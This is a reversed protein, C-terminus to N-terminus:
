DIDEANDADEPLPEIDSIPVPAIERPPIVERQPVAEERQPPPEPARNATLGGILINSLNTEDWHPSPQASARVIVLEYEPFIWVRQYGPSHFTIVKSATFPESAPMMYSKPDFVTAGSYDIHGDGLWVQFGFTPAASSPRIMQDVWAAPVVQKGDFKGRDLLLQGIKAWDMPRSIFCCSKKALGDDRDLYLLGHAQGLPQWIKESLYDAYRVGTTREIVLGVLNIDEPNFQWATGPTQALETNLLAGGFDAGFLYASGESWPWGGYEVPKLGSTMRLAQRLTIKGRPDNRWEKIYTGVEDDVSGIHGEDIAIGTLLATTVGAIASANFVTNRSVTGWYREIEVRGGQLVILADTDRLESHNIAANIARPTIAWNDGDVFPLESGDGGKVVERPRFVVPQATWIQDGIAIYRYWFVPQRGVVIAAVILSLILAGLVLRRRQM